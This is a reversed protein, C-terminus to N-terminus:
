TLQNKGCLVLGTFAKFFLQASLEAMIRRLTICYMSFLFLWTPTSFDQMTAKGELPM